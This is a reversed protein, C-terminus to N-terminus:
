IREVVTKPFKEYSIKFRGTRGFRKKEFGLERSLYLFEQDTELGKFELICLIDMDKKLIDFMSSFLWFNTPEFSVYGDGLTINEFFIYDYKMDNMKDIVTVMKDNLDIVITFFRSGLVSSLVLEIADSLCEYFVDLDSLSDLLAYSINTAFVFVFNECEQNENMSRETCRGDITNHMCFDCVERKPMRM